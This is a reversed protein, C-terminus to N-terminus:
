EEFQRFAREVEEDTAFEGADAARIASKIHEIQWRQVELYNDLAEDILQTRRRKLARALSDLRRVRSKNTRFSVVVKNM